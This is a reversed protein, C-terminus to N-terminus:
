WFVGNLHQQSGNTNCSSHTSNSGYTSNYATHAAATRSSRVKDMLGKALIVSEQPRARKTMAKEWGGLWGEAQVWISLAESESDFDAAVAESVLQRLCDDSTGVVSLTLTEMDKPQREHGVVETGKKYRVMWVNRGNYEFVSYAQAM